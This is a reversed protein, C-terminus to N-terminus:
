LAGLSGMRLIATAQQLVKARGMDQAVTYLLDSSGANNLLVKAHEFRLGNKKQGVDKPRM